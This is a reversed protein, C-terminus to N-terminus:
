WASSTDCWPTCLCGLFSTLGHQAALDLVFLQKWHAAAGDTLISRLINHTM